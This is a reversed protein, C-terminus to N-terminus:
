LAWGDTSAHTSTAQGAVGQLVGVLVDALQDYFIYDQAGITRVVRGGFQRKFRSFKAYSHNPDESYGYFDYLRCGRAKAREMAAWHLAYNGMLEPHDGSRGGYLYTARDGWYIVLIASLWDGEWAAWGIEAMGASFLRQCLNVFFRYPEGFFGQREVSSAFLEYFRPIAWDEAVFGTGVGHRQSVRLNYRGKPKMQALRDAEPLTLDVVWSESPLIDLPSRVFGPPLLALPSPVLPWTPEVRLTIAGTSRAIATAEALLLAWGCDREAASLNAPLIPGGIALLLKAPSPSPYLLFLCGGVIAARGGVVSRVLGYRFVQYGEREKFESWAWSQMFCGEPGQSLRDWASRDSDELSRLMLPPGVLCDRALTLASAVM